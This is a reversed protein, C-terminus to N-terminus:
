QLYSVDSISEITFEGDAYHMISVACNPMSGHFEGGLFAGWAETDHFMKDLYATIAGGHSTVLFTGGNPNEAIISQIAQEFRDATQAMTEGGEETYGKQIRDPFMPLPDELGELSGCNTEKLNEDIFLPIDRDGIIYNATDYARESISTYCADFDVDALGGNLKQAMSVGEETLPSDCWGQCVGRVNFMTQGHRVLYFTYEPNEVAAQNGGQSDAGGAAPQNNECGTLAFSFVFTAILALVVLKKKM